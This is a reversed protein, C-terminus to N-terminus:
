AVFCSLRLACSERSGDNLRFQFDTCHVIRQFAFGVVHGLLNYAHGV